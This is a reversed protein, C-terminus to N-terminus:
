CYEDQCRMSLILGIIWASAILSSGGYSMFPLTFGKTPILALCSSINIAVQGAFLSLLGVICLYYRDGDGRMRIVKLLGRQIIITYLLLLVVCTFIGGEEAIVAFIFDTSADPIRFKWVGDGIGSGFFGGSSIASLAVKTQYPIEGGLFNSIRSYVHPLYGLFILGFLSVGCLAFVWSISAKIRSPIESCFMQIACASIVLFASGFDPQLLFVLSTLVCCSIALFYSESSILYGSVVMLAPRIFESPQLSFGFIRIWRAANNVLKGDFIIFIARFISLVRGM